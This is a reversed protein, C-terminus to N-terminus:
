WRERDVEALVAASANFEVEDPQGPLIYEVETEPGTVVTTVFAEGENEFVLRTPVPMVFDDPVGEQRVRLKLAV